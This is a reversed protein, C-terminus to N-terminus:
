AAFSSGISFRPVHVVVMCRAIAHVAGRLKNRLHSTGMWWVGDTPTCLALLVFIIVERSM